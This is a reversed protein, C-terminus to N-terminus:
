TKKEMSDWAADAKVASKEWESGLKKVAEKYLRVQERQKTTGVGDLTKGLQQFVADTEVGESRLDRLASSAPKSNLDFTGRVTGM